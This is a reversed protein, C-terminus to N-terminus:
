PLTLPPPGSIMILLKWPSTNIRFSFYNNPFQNNPILTKLSSTIFHYPHRYSTSVQKLGNSAKFSVVLSLGINRPWLVPFVQGCPRGDATPPGHIKTVFLLYAGINLSLSYFATMAILLAFFCDRQLLLSHDFDGAEGLLNIQIAHNYTIKFVIGISRMNSPVANYLILKSVKFQGFVEVLNSRRGASFNRCIRM